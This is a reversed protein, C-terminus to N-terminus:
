ICPEAVFGLEAELARRRSSERRLDHREGPLSVTRCRGGLRRYMAAVLEAQPPGVVPDESGQVLLVPAPIGPGFHGAPSVDAYAPGDSGGVLLDAYRSELDHTEGRWRAVDAIGARCLGVAFAGSRALCQLTLYGGASAGRVVVRRGDVIGEGGLRAVAALCDALDAEGWAGYLRERYHRGFGSSGSYNLDLFAFGRSTWLGAEPDHALAAADTPGGHLNLILAPAAGVGRPRHLFGHVEVGDDRRIWLAEPVVSETASDAGDGAIQVAAGTTADVAYVGAPVLPASGAVALRHGRCCVHGGEVHTLAPGLWEIRGNEPEVRVLQHVADRVRVAAITGDALFDYAQSGLRWAPTAYDAADPAVVRRAGDAGLAELNWWGSRDSVWHLRGDPSWSPALVSEHTGGAVRRADRLEGGAAIEACWLESGDWSMNPKDWCIWALRCGDPSVRPAAYFDRGSAIVRPTRSTALDVAVLRQEVGGDRHSENVYAAWGRGPVASGDAYRESGARPPTLPQPAGGPSLRYLRQDDRDSYVLAGQELPLFSGGGYEWVLTGVDVGAPTLATAARGPAATMVRSRGEGYDHELWLVGDDAIRVEGREVGGAVAAPDLPAARRPSIV